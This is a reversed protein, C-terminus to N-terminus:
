RKEHAQRTRSSLWNVTARVLHTFYLSRSTASELRIRGRQTLPPTAGRASFRVTIRRGSCAYAEKRRMAAFFAERTHEIAVSSCLRRREPIAATM